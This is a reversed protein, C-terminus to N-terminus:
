EKPSNNNNLQGTTDLEKCGMFQLMGPRETGWWRGFNAWTWTRQMPSTMWGGWRRIGEKGETKLREWCWPSKWHTLKECGDSSWFILAEAEADTSRVLIWLQSGKLNVPKNEKSDLLSEPTKELVVTQLCWNKVSRGEKHDLEWTVVPFVMAKAILVKTPLTIERSKLVGDLNTIAKRDLHVHRRIEHSCHGNATIKSHLLLFYTVVEVKGGGRNAMVGTSQGGWAFLQSMPFSESAPLSQPCSSFPVVSSSIAPHCWQGLPRSNSHVPLQHHVPLRPTSCNM